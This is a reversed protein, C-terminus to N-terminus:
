DIKMPGVQTLWILLTSWALLMDLIFYPICIVSIISNFHVISLVYFLSPSSINSAVLLNIFPNLNCSLIMDM